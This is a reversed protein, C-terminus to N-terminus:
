LVQILKTKEESRKQSILLIIVGAILCIASLVILFFFVGWLVGWFEAESLFPADERGMMVCGNRWYLCGAEQTMSPIKSETTFCDYWGGVKFQGGNWQFPGLQQTTNGEFNTCKVKSFKPVKNRCPSLLNGEECLGGNDCELFPVGIAGGKVKFVPSITWQSPVRSVLNQSVKQPNAKVRTAGQYECKTSQFENNFAVRLGGMSGFTVGGVIFLVLSITSGLILCIGLKKLTAM